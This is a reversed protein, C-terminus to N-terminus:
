RCKAELCLTGILIQLRTTFDDRLLTGIKRAFEPGIRFKERFVSVGNWACMEFPHFRNQAGESRDCSVAALIAPKLRQRRLM